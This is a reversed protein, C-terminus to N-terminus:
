YSANWSCNKKDYIIIGGKYEIGCDTGKYNVFTM